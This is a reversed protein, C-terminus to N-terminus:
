DDGGREGRTVVKEWREWGRKRWVLWGVAIVVAKEASKILWIWICNQHLEVYDTMMKMKKISEKRM